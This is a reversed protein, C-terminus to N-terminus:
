VCWDEFMSILLVVEFSSQIVASKEYKYGMYHELPSHIILTIIIALHMTLPDFGM